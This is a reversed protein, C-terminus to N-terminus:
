LAARIEVAIEELAKPDAMGSDPDAHPKMAGGEWVPIIHFHIHFVSQGAAAGNFQAIRIGDPALARDIAQAITQTRQILMSLVDAEVTLLNTAQAQKPIVLTHGRTQPFADMFSLVHDDEYITVSPIDGKIIKAFINDPDYTERLSM